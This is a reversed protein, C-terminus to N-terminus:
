NEPNYSSIRQSTKTSIDNILENKLTSTPKIYRNGNFLKQLTSVDSYNTKVIDEPSNILEWKWYGPVIHKYDGQYVAYNIIDTKTVDFEDALLIIGTETSVLEYKFTCSVTNAQSYIDYKIKKYEVQESTQGTQSNTVYKVKKLYGKETYGNLNGNKVKLDVIQATLIAKAGLLKGAQTGTNKDVSGSLSLEQENIYEQSNSKDIIKLFINGSNNIHNIISSRVTSALTPESSCTFDKMWVSFIAAALADEKYQASEKYTKIESVISDFTYYAKRFQKNDFYTSARRYKPEYHSKLQLESVDKYGPELKLIENFIIECERFKEEQFLKAGLRYKEEIHTQKSENFQEEYSPPLDLEIDYHQFREQFEKANLYYYVANKSNGSIYAKTFDALKKDLSIQGNKKAGLKSEINNSNAIVSKLYYEAADEYLGSKESKVALKAYKKTACGSHVLLISLPIILKILKKM